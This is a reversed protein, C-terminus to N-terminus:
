FDPAMVAAAKHKSALFDALPPATFPDAVVQAARETAIQATEVWPPPETAPTPSRGMAALLSAEYHCVLKDFALLDDELRQIEDEDREIRIIRLAQLDPCWLGLDMWQLRLLWLGFLCQDRYESIDGDVMADFLTSSSVMTKVELAGTRKQVWRDLSMGFKLDDTTIFFAEEVDRGTRAVYEIAAFQEEEHGIRQAMGQFGEPEQGGARERAVEKAYTHAAEGFELTLKGAMARAVTESTPAAKYGAAARSAAEGRGAKMADVYLRQQPTLGDIRRVAAARSATIVGRRAQKWEPTGQKYPHEIM